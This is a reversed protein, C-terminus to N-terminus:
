SFCREELSLNKDKGEEVFRHVKEFVDLPAFEKLYVEKTLGKEKFIANLKEALRHQRRFYDRQSLKKEIGIGEGICENCGKSKGNTKGKIEEKSVSVIARLRKRKGFYRIAVLDKELDCLEDLTEKVVGCLWELREKRLIEEALYETLKETDWSSEYSLLAKNRIHDAYDKGITGLLPYTYLIVKAYNEM